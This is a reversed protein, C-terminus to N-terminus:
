ECYKEYYWNTAYWVCWGDDPLNSILAFNTGFNWAADMCSDDMSINEFKKKISELTIKQSHINKNPTALEKTSNDITCPPETETPIFNGAFASLSTTSAIFLAALLKTTRKM